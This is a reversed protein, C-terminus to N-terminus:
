PLDPEEGTSYLIVSLLKLHLKLLDTSQCAARDTGHSQSCGRATTWVTQQQTKFSKVLKNQQKFSARGKFVTVKQLKIEQM